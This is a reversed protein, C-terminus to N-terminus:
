GRKFSTSGSHDLTDSHSKGVVKKFFIFRNVKLRKIEKWKGLRHVWLAPINDGWYYGYAKTFGKERLSKLAKAQLFSAFNNGRENPNLFMDFTYVQDETCHLGLRQCDSHCSTTDNSNPSFFWIDGIINKGKVIAYGGYGKKLYHIAKLYRSKVPYYFDKKSLIDQRLEILEVLSQKSQEKSIEFDPLNKEVVIAVRNVYFIERLFSSFGNNKISESTQLLRMFFWNIM